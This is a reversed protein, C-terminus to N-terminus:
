GNFSALIVDVYKISLDVTGPGSVTGTVPHTHATASGSPTSTYPGAVRTPSVPPSPNSYRATSWTYPHNHTATVGGSSAGTATNLDSSGTFAQNTFVSSFGQAGGTTISGSTVRFAYNNLTTDKTWGTPASTQQFIMIAGTYNPIEPDVSAGSTLSFVGSKLSGITGLLPAM